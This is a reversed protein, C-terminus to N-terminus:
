KVCNNKIRTREATGAICTTRQTANGDMRDRTSEGEVQVHDGSEIWAGAAEQWGMDGRLRPPTAAEHGDDGDGDGDDFEQEALCGVSLLCCVIVAVCVVCGVYLWGVLGVDGRFTDFKITSYPQIL